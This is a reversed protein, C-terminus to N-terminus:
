KKFSCANYNKRMADVMPSLEILVRSALSYKGDLALIAAIDVKDLIEWLDSEMASYAQADAADREDATVAETKANTM